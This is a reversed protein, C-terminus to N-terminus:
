MKWGLFPLSPSLYNLKKNTCCHCLSLLWHNQHSHIFTVMAKMSQIPCQIIKKSRHLVMIELENDNMSYNQWSRVSSQNVNTFTIRKWKTHTEQNQKNPLEM